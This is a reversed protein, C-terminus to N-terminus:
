RALAHGPEEYSLTREETLRAAYHLCQRIDEPELDPYNRLIDETLMGNAVLNVVLGVTIRMGRICPKGQMIKPDITIRDLNMARVKVIRKLKADLGTRPLGPHVHRLFQPRTCSSHNPAAYMGVRKLVFTCAHCRARPPPRRARRRLTPVRVFAPSVGVGLQTEMKVM